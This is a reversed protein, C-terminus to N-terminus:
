GEARHVSTPYCEYLVSKKKGPLISYPIITLVKAFPPQGILIASSPKLDAIASSAFNNANKCVIDSSRAPRRHGDRPPFFNGSVFIMGGLIERRQSRALECNISGRLLKKKHSNLAVTHTTTNSYLADHHGSRRPPPMPKYQVKNRGDTPNSAQRHWSSMQM